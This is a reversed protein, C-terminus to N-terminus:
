KKIKDCNTCFNACFKGDCSICEENTKAKPPPIWDTDEGFYVIAGEPCCNGCGHCYDFCSDPDLVFPRLASKKDFVDYPCNNICLGCNVCKEYEVIPYWKESM